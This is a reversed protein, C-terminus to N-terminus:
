LKRLGTGFGPWEVALGGDICAKAHFLATLRGSERGGDLRRSIAEEIRSSRRRGLCRLAPRM